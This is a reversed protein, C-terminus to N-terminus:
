ADVLYLTMGERHPILVPMGTDTEYMEIYKHFITM